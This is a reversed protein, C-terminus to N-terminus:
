RLCYKNHPAPIALTTVCLPAAGCPTPTPITHLSFPHIHGDTTVAAAHPSNPDTLSLRIGEALPLGTIGAAKYVAEKVTWAHLLLAPTSYLAQEHSSLFRPAVRLLQDRWTETDIGIRRHPDIAIAAYLRSHSVSINISSGTILPAGDPSHGLEADSGLLARILRMTAAREAQRRPCTIGHLQQRDSDTLHGTTCTLSGTIATIAVITDGIHHTAIM